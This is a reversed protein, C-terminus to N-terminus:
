WKSSRGVVAAAAEAAGVAAFAKAAARAAAVVFGCCDLASQYPTRAVALLAARHLCKNTLLAKPPLM